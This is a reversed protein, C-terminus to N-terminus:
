FEEVGIACWAGYNARISEEMGPWVRIGRVTLMTADYERKGDEIPYVRGEPFLYVDATEWDTYHIAYYDSRIVRTGAPHDRPSNTERTCM